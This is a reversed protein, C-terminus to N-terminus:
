SARFIREILADIQPDSGATVRRRVGSATRRVADPRPAGAAPASGSRRRADEIRGVADARPSGHVRAYEVESAVIQMLVSDAHRGAVGLARSLEWARRAVDAREDSGDPSIAALVEDFISVGCWAVPCAGPRAVVHLAEGADWRADAANKM